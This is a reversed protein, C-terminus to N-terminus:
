RCCSLRCDQARTLAAESQDPPQSQCLAPRIWYCQPDTQGIWTDSESRPLCFSAPSWFRGKPAFRFSYLFVDTSFTMRETTEDTQEDNTKNCFLMPQKKLIQNLFSSKHFTIIRNPTDSSTSTERKNLQQIKCQIKCLTVQDRLVSTSINTVLLSHFRSDINRKFRSDRRDGTWGYALSKSKLGENGRHVKENCENFILMRLSCYTFFRIDEAAVIACASLRSSPTGRNVDTEFSLRDM